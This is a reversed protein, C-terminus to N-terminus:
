RPTAPDATLRVREASTAAAWGTAYMWRAIRALKAYDIADPEDAPTHYRPHPLSSFYISPIGLQAYPVHDSRFYWGEPHDPRDWLSDLAFHGVTENAQLAMEALDTSNRHPPQAGLLGASDPSNSGIMDANLVAVISDRPVLPHEAHYRSGLLGKEEAGHWVFLASRPAPHRAWARGIALIGVSASGNDDAGNWISDGAVPAKIGDHDQHASFLVYQGRLAPDSGPVQAVVNVSPFTTREAVLRATLRRGSSSFLPASAQRVWIVPVPPRPGILWERFELGYAADLAAVFDWGSDAVADAVFVIAAPGKAATSALREFINAFAYRAPRISIEDPIPADPPTMRIVAVKGTLDVKGLADARGDGALAIPADITLDSLSLALADQGLTLATGGVAIRSSPALRVMRLPWFQFYTGDDGAPELGAKRAQEALWVSARLEDLTGAERGRFHDGALIELDARLDDERILELGPLAASGACGAALLLGALHLPSRRM